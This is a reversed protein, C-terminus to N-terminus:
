IKQKMKPMRVAREAINNSFPVISDAIFRM